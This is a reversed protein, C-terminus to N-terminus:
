SIMQQKAIRSENGKRASLVLLILIALIFIMDVFSNNKPLNFGLFAIYTFFFLFQKALKPSGFVKELV